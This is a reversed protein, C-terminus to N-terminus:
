DEFELIALIKKQVEENTIQYEVGKYTVLFCNYNDDKTDETTEEETTEEETLYEKVKARITLVTDTPAVNM